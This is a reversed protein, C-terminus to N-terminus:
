APVNKPPPAPVEFCAREGLGDRLLRLKMPGLGHVGSFEGLSGVHGRRLRHVHLRGALVPGIGRISGFDAADLENVFVPLELLLSVPLPWHCRREPSSPGQCRLPPRPRMVDANLPARIPVVRVAGEELVGRFHQPFFDPSGRRGSVTHLAGLLALVAAFERARRGPSRRRSRQNRKM